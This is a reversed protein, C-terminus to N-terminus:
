GCLPKPPLLGFATMSGSCHSSRILRNFRISLGVTGCVGDCYSAASQLTKPSEDLYSFLKTSAGRRWVGGEISAIASSNSRELAVETM